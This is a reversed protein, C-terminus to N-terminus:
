VGYRGGAAWCATVAQYNTYTTYQTQGVWVTAWTSVTIHDVDYRTQTPQATYVTVTALQPQDCVTQTPPTFTETVSAYVTELSTRPQALITSTSTITTTAFVTSTIAAAKAPERREIEAAPVDGTESGGGRRGGGGGGGGGGGRSGGGSGGGGGGRSGGGSGGGGRSGGGSGGAGSGGGGRSGGGSGGGGGGRSGGGSSGGGSGGGGGRSGGGSSGGGSGGGGGRSGGGSSGGGSGGGGGRSGGGSSGGGSGGGGGRSGGGSSGGGSGGGGGRSGGGSSGGGSGGGGRSGGGSGGSGGGQSGGGSSGGGGGRSGGGSSGGGRSGGGSSWGWGSSSYWPRCSNGCGSPKPQAPTPPPKDAKPPTPTQTYHCAASVAVTTQYYSTLAGATTTDAITVPITTVPAPLWQTETQTSRAPGGGACNHDTFTPARGVVLSTQTVTTRITVGAPTSTIGVVVTPTVTTTLKEPTTVTLRFERIVQFNVTDAQLVITWDGNYMQSYAIQCSSQQQQGDVQMSIPTCLYQTGEPDVLIPEITDAEGCSDFVSTFTFDDSSSGDVLYSGGNSYDVGTCRCTSLDAAVQRLSLLTLCTLLCQYSRPAMVPLRTRM